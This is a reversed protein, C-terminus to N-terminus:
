VIFRSPIIMAVAHTARLTAAVRYHSDSVSQRATDMLDCDSFAGFAFRAHRGEM